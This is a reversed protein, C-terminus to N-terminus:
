MTKYHRANPSLHTVKTDRLAPPKHHDKNTHSNDIAQIKPSKRYNQPPNRSPTYGGCIVLLDASPRKPGETNKCILFLLSLHQFATSCKIKMCYRVQFHRNQPM